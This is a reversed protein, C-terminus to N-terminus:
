VSLMNYMKQTEYRIVTKGEKVGGYMPGLFGSVVPEGQLEIRLAPNTSVGTQSFHNLFEEKEFYKTGDVHSVTQYIKEM